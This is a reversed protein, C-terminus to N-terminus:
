NVRFLQAGHPGIAATIGTAVAGMDRREWLNRVNHSGTLGLDTWTAGVESPLSGRNFLAVALSGDALKRSWVEATGDDRVRVAKAGLSDQDIAIVDDNTLLATTWADNDPLHAGVMLPSPAICWLTLMTVQENKTLHTTHDSGAAPCLIGVHGVPLMDADPFHGPGGIPSWRNLLDFNHDVAGWNDWFDGSIRWMNANASVHKAQDVPTEGPSTSFIIPRGCKDIAKRIAEIEGSSYPSSLDDVKIYDLNWAAYQRLISDYWAQGAPKTTDVGYMDPCWGCTNHIDAADAATFSSGQIPTKAEVSQRPIGRMIHVGFKLGMAHVKDALAKFGVGNASSPFRDVAPVLRGYNDASLRRGNWSSRDIVDNELPDYWRYDVIVYQWGHAKMHDHLFQANALTEKETVSDGFCDYSNWGMPPTLALTDSIVIELQEASKGASNSVSVAVNHKGADAVSGTIEGTASDLAL